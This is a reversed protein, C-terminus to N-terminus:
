ALVKRRRWSYGCIGVIGSGLLVISAPEPVNAPALFAGAPSNLSVTNIVTVEGPQDTLASTQVYLLASTAGPPLAASISGFQVGPVSWGTTLPINAGSGLAFDAFIMPGATAATYDGVTMATVAHNATQGAPTPLNKIQYTFLMGTVAGAGVGTTTGKYDNEIVEVGNPFSGGSFIVDVHHFVPPLPNGNNPLTGSTPTPLAGPVLDGAQAPLSFMLIGFAAIM